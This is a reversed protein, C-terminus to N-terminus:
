DLRLLVEELGDDRADQPAVEEDVVRFGCKELVRISGVNRKVVGAYLPRTREEDLFRRLASTAVGRGWFQRGIWYGVERRRTVPSPFSVVNGAVRGEVLVTRAMVTEDGLIRTKWHVMFAEEDRPGFGAM